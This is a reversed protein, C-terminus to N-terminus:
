QHTEKFKKNRKDILDCLFGHVEREPRTWDGRLRVDGMMEMENRVLFLVMDIEEDDNKAGLHELRKMRVVM